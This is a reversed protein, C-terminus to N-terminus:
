ARAREVSTLLDWLGDQVAGAVAQASQLRAEGLDAIRADLEATHDVDRVAHVEFYQAGDGAIGYHTRLGALKERSVPASQSEVAWAVALGAPGGSLRDAQDVLSRTVSNPDSPGAGLSRAFQDWLEIHATEEDAHRRLDAGGGATNEAARRLWRPLGRVVHAYQGSYDRLEDISLTGALWRRYFSHDLLNRSVTLAL